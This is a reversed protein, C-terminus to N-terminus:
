HAIAFHGIERQNGGSQAGAAQKVPEGRDGLCALGPENGLRSAPMRTPIFAARHLYQDRDLADDVEVDLDPDLGIARTHLRGVDLHRHVGEVLDADLLGHAELLGALCALDYGDRDAGCGALLGDAGGEGHPGVAADM